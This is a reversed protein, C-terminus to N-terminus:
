ESETFGLPTTESTHMMGWLKLYLSDGLVSKAMAKAGAKAQLKRLAKGDKKMWSQLQKATTTSLMNIRGPTFSSGRNIKPSSTFIRKYGASQCAALVTKNMRGGPLSLEDVAIGLKDELVKKSREVEWRLEQPGCRTLFRHSWGHSGIIQGQRVLERLHEWGMCSERKGTWGATVFFRAQLGAQVLLPLAISHDTIGGDDFTIETQFFQSTGKKAELIVNLHEQFLDKSVAYRYPCPLDHLEHYLLFLQERPASAPDATQLREEALSSNEQTDDIYLPQAM